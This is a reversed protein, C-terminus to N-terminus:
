NMAFWIATIAPANDCGMRWPPQRLQPAAYAGREYFVGWAM